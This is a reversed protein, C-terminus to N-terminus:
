YILLWILRVQAGIMIIDSGHRSQEDDAVAENSSSSKSSISGIKERTQRTISPKCRFKKLFSADQESPSLEAMNWTVISVTLDSINNDKADNSEGTKIGRVNKSDHAMHDKGNESYDFNNSTRPTLTEKAKREDLEINNSNHNNLNIKKEDNESIIVKSINGSQKLLEVGSTNELCQDDEFLELENIITPKSSHLNKAIESLDEFDKSMEEFAEEEEQCSKNKERISETPETNNSLANNNFKALKAISHSLCIKNTGTNDTGNINNDVGTHNNDNYNNCITDRNDYNLSCLSEKENYEKVKIEFQNDLIPLSNIETNNVNTNSSTIEDDTMQQAINNSSDKSRDKAVVIIDNSTDSTGELRHKIGGFFATTINSPSFKLDSEDCLCFIFGNEIDIIKNLSQPVSKEIIDEKNLRGINDNNINDNNTINPMTIVSFFKAEIEIETIVLSRDFLCSSEEKDFINGLAINITVINSGKIVENGVHTGEDTRKENYGDSDNEGNDISNNKLNNIDEINSISTSNLDSKGSKSAILVEGNDREINGISKLNINNNTSRNKNLDGIKPINISSYITSHDNSKIANGISGVDFSKLPNDEKNIDNDVAQLRSCNKNRINEEEKDRTTLIETKDIATVEKDKSLNAITTKGDRLINIATVRENIRGNVITTKNDDSSEDIYTKSLMSKTKNDM